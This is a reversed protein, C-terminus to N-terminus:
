VDTSIRSPSGHMNLTSRVKSGSSPKVVGERLRRFVLIPWIVACHPLSSSLGLQVMRPDHPSLGLDCGLLLNSKLTFLGFRGEFDDFGSEGL